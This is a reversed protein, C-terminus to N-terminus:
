TRPLSNLNLFWKFSLDYRLQECFQRESRITFLAILLSSKLLHEPPISPWGNDAYLEDFLPSMRQLASDALPNIRRLPHDMPVFGELTLGLMMTAQRESEGRM